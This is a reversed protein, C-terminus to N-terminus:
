EESALTSMVVAFIGVIAGVAVILLLGYMIATGPDALVINNLLIYFYVLVVVLSITMLFLLAFAIWLQKIKMKLHTIEEEAV